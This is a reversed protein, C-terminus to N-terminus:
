SVTLGVHMCAKYHGPLNCILVYKGAEADIELKETSNPKIDEIEDIHTVGAGEEDVQGKSNDVPLKDPALDTKFVVFEHPSPGDNTVIFDIKGAEVSTEDLAIAFDKETANVASENGEPASTAPVPTPTSGSENDGGGCAVGLVLPLAAVLMLSCHRLRRTM